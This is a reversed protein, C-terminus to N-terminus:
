VMSTLRITVREKISMSLTRLKKELHMLSKLSVFGDQPLQYNITTTPNFPNPFNQNLFVINPFKFSKSFLNENKEKRM